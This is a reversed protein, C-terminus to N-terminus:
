IDGTHPGCKGLKLEHALVVYDWQVCFVEDPGTCGFVTFLVTCLIVHLITLKYAETKLPTEIENHIFKVVIFVLLTYCTGSDTVTDTSYVLGPM